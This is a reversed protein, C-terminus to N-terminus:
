NALYYHGKRKVVLKMDLRKTRGYKPILSDNSFNNEPFSVRYLNRVAKQLLSSYSIFNIKGSHVSDTVDIQKKEVNSDYLPPLTVLLDNKMKTYDSLAQHFSSHETINIKFYDSSFYLNYIQLTLDKKTKSQIEAKNFYLQFPGVTMPQHLSDAYFLIYKSDQAFSFAPISLLFLLITKMFCTKFILLEGLS